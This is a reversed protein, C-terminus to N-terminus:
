RLTRRYLRPTVELKLHTTRIAAASAAAKVTPYGLNYRKCCVVVPVTAKLDAPRSLIM